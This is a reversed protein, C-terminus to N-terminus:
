RCRTRRTWPRWVLVTSVAVTGTLVAWTVPAPLVLGACVMFAVAVWLVGDGRTM